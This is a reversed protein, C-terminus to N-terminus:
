RQPLNISHETELKMAICEAIVALRTLPDICGGRMRSFRSRHRTGMAFGDDRGFNWVANGLSALDSDLAPLGLVVVGTAERSASSM